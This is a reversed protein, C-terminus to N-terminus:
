NEYLDDDEAMIEDIDDFLDLTYDDNEDTSENDDDIDELVGNAEAFSDYCEPCIMQRANWGVDFLAEQIAAKITTEESGSFSVEHTKHCVSCTVRMLGDYCYRINDM